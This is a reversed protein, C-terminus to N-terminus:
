QLSLPFGFHCQFMNTTQYKRWWRHCHGFPLQLWISFSCRKEALLQTWRKFILKRKISISKFQKRMEICKAFLWLHHHFRSLSVATWSTLFELPPYNCISPFIMNAAVHSRNKMKRSKFANTLLCVFLLTCWVAPLVRNLLNKAKYDKAPCKTAIIKLENPDVM